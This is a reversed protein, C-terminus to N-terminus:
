VKAARFDMNKQSKVTASSIIVCRLLSLRFFCDIEYFKMRVGEHGWSSGFVLIVFEALGVGRVYM